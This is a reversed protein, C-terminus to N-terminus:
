LHLNKPKRGWRVGMHDWRVQGGLGLVGMHGSMGSTGRLRYHHSGRIHDQWVQGGESGIIRISGHSDVM